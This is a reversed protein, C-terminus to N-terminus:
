ANDNTEQNERSDGGDPKMNETKLIAKIAKGERARAASANVESKARYYVYVLYLGIPALLFIWWYKKLTEM